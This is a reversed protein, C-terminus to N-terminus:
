NMEDSIVILHHYNKLFSLELHVVYVNWILNNSYGEQIYEVPRLTYRGPIQSISNRRNPLTYTQQM